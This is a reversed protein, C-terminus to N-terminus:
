EANPDFSCYNDSGIKITGREIGKSHMEYLAAQLNGNQASEKLNEPAGECILQDSIYARVVISSTNINRFFIDAKDTEELMKLTDNLLANGEVDVPKGVKSKKIKLNTIRTIKPEDDSIRLVLGDEDIIIYRKGDYLAAQEKREEVKIVITSPLKRKIVVNKLYSDKLLKSKLKGKRFAFINKGIKVNAKDKIQEVTYYNNGLVKVRSIDFIDSSLFYYMGACCIIFVVFRLLYNKRRHKKRKREKQAM